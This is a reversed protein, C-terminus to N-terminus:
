FESLKTWMTTTTPRGPTAGRPLALALAISAGPAIFPLGNSQGCVDGFNNISFGHSWLGGTYPSEQDLIGLGAPVGPISLTGDGNLEITWVVAESFGSETTSYGTALASGNELENIEEAIAEVGDALPPLLVPGDIVVTGDNDVVVKWVVGVPAWTGTAGPESFGVVMGADNIALASSWLDGPLAPLAVPEADPDAWFVAGLNTDGGVIQNLNNVGSAGNNDGSVGGNHLLTYDDTVTDFHWAQSTGAVNVGGVAHGQDNLDHVLSATSAIGPPSFPVITYAAAGGGGNGGGNNNGNGKGQALSISAPLIMMLLLPVLIAVNAILNIKMLKRVFMELRKRIFITRLIIFFGDTRARVTIGPPPRTAPSFHKDVHSVPWNKTSQQTRKKYALFTM